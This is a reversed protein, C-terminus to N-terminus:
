NNSRSHEARQARIDLYHRIAIDPRRIM